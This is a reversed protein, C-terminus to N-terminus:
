SLSGIGMKLVPGDSNTSYVTGQSYYSPGYCSLSCNLDSFGLDKSGLSLTKVQHIKSTSPVFSYLKQEYLFYCESECVKFVTLHLAYFPLFLELVKWELRELSLEQIEFRTRGRIDTGGFIYVALNDELQIVGFNIVAIPIQPISEWKNDALSLRECERLFSAQDKGSFVYLFGRHWVSNHRTRSNLMPTKVSVAYERQTDLTVVENAKDQGRRIDGGTFCIYPYSLACWSSFLKFLYPHIILVCSSGTLLNTAFLAKTRFRYSYTYPPLKTIKSNGVAEEPEM